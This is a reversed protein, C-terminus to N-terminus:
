AAVEAAGVGWGVSRRLLETFAPSDWPGDMTVPLEPTLDQLDYRGCRHGLALFLVEGKGYKRRWMIPRPLDEHWDQAVYSESAGTYRAELLMEVEASMEMLYPEDPVKFPTLGEILADETGAATVTIEQYPLHAIFRGGILAMFEPALDPTDVLGPLTVIKLDQPPGDTFRVIASTGHMALWRGGERLFKEVVPLQEATPVVNNTYTILLDAAAIEEVPAYTSSCSTRVTEHAALLKLLELRVFDFDHHQGSCVIHARKVKSM